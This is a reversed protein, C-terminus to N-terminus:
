SSEWKKIRNVDFLGWNKEPEHPDTEGKWPEDFAEFLYVLTNNEKSFKLIDLSYTKQNEITADEQKIKAGHSKTPWGTETIIVDKNPYKKKVAYFDNILAECAQHIPINRWAPYSHMSIFDVTDALDDLGELWYQYEECYTVPLKTKEKIWQAVEILRKEHVLNNVWPSQVENGISIASVISQYRNGLDIIEQVRLQNIAKHKNLIAESFRYFYPHNEYNSEAAMSLGLMVKYNLKHETILELVKYAHESCDFLRIYDYDKLLRLDELIEEKSPYMKNLPSQGKRYGSYNIAKGHKVM